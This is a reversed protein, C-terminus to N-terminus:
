KLIFIIRIQVIVEFQNELIFKIGVDGHCVGKMGAPWLKKKRQTKTDEKM